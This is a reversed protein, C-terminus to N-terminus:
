PYRSTSAMPAVTRLKAAGPREHADASAAQPGFSRMVSLGQADTLAAPIDM